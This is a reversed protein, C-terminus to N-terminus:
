SYRALASALDSFEQLSLTEARRSGDIKADQLSLVLDQPKVLHAGRLSNLLKKRRQQFSARVVRRFWNLDEVKVRPVKSFNLEVVQSDVATPPHFSNGSVVPGLKVEAWIQLMVSIVGYDRGGPDAGLREVFERQLLFTARSAIAVFDLVHFLIDTSFSYPLNGYIILDQGFQSLDVSRADAEVVNIEPFKQRLEFCFEPEIEVVSLQNSRQLHETLAGLGPGLEVLNAGSPIPSFQLLKDIVESDILFNQGRRKSPRVGLQSLQDRVRVM